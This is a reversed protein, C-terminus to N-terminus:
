NHDLIYTTERVIHKHYFNYYIYITMYQNRIEERECVRIKVCM